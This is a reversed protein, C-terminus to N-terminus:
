SRHAGQRIGEPQDLRMRPQHAQRSAREAALGPKRRRRDPAAKEDNAVRVLLGPRAAIPRPLNHIAERFADLAGDRGRDIRVNDQADILRPNLRIAERFAIVADDKRGQSGLAVGLAFYADHLDPRMRIALELTAIAEATRGQLLLAEGLDHYTDPNDPNLKIAVRFEAIADDYKKQDVLANALNEHAARSLPRLGIARVFYRAAEAPDPVPADVMNLNGQEICVWYDGPFRREAVNLVPMSTAPDGADWLMRVLLILSRVPQRNMAEVDAAGARLAAITEEPPRNFQDRLANRWPDTDVARAVDALRRWSQAGLERRRVNCWDDIAAVLEATSRRGTLKAAVVKTEVRDLDLGYDRFAAGMDRDFRELNFDETAARQARELDALLKREADGDPRDAERGHSADVLAVALARVEPAVILVGAAVITAVCRSLQQSSTFAPDSSRPM